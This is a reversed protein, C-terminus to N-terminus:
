TIELHPVVNGGSPGVNGRLTCVSIVIEDVSSLLQLIEAHRFGFLFYFKKLHTFSGYEQRVGRTDLMKCDLKDQKLTFTPQMIKFYCFFWFHPEM